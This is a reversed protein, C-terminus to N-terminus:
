LFRSPQLQFEIRLILVHARKGRKVFLTPFGPKDIDWGIWIILMKECSAIQAPPSTHLCM